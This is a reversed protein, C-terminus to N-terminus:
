RLLHPVVPAHTPSYRSRTAAEAKGSCWPSLRPFSPLSRAWTPAPPAAGLAPPMRSSKPRRAAAPRSRRQLSPARQMQEGGILMQSDSHNRNKKREESRFSKANTSKYKTSRRCAWNEVWVDTILHVDSMNRIQLSNYMLKRKYSNYMLKKEPM